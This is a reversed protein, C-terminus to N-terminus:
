AWVRDASLAANQRKQLSLKTVETGGLNEEPKKEKEACVGRSVIGGFSVDV